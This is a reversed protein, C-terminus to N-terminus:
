AARESRPRAVLREYVAEYRETMARVSFRREV